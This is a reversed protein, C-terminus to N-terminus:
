SSPAAPDTPEPVPQGTAPDTLSAATVNVHYASILWQHATGAPAPVLYYTLQRTFRVEVPKGNMALEITVVHDFTLVLRTQTGSQVSATPATVSQQTVYRRDSRYTFREYDTGLDYFALGNIDMCSQHVFDLCEQAKRKTDDRIEPALRTFVPELLDTTNRGTWAFYAPDLAEKTARAVM